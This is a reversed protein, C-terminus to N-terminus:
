RGLGLVNKFLHDQDSQTLTTPNNMTKSTKAAKGKSAKSAKPAEPMVRGRAALRLREIGVGDSIVDKIVKKMTTGREANRGAIVLRSVEVVQWLKINTAETNVNGLVGNLAAFAGAKTPSKVSLHISDASMRGVTTPTAMKVNIEYGTVSDTYSLRDRLVQEQVMTVNEKSKKAM